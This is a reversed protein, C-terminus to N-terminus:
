AEKIFVYHSKSKGKGSWIAITSMKLWLTINNQVNLGNRVPHVKVVLSEDQLVHHGLIQLGMINKPIEPDVKDLEMEGELRPIGIAKELSLFMSTTIRKGVFNAATCNTKTHGIM